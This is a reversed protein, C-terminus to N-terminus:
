TAPTTNRRAHLGANAFRANSPLCAIKTIDTGFPIVTKESCVCTFLQRRAGGILLPERRGSPTKRAKREGGVFWPRRPRSRFHMAACANSAPNRGRRGSIYARARAAPRAVPTPTVPLARSFFPPICHPRAICSGRPREVIVMGRARQCVGTRPAPDMWSTALAALGALDSTQNARCVAILRNFSYLLLFFFFVYLDSAAVCSVLCSVVGQWRGYFFVYGAWGVLGVTGGDRRGLVAGRRM